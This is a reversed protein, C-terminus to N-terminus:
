MLFVGDVAVDVGVCTGEGVEVGTGTTTVVVM